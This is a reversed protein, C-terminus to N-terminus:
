YKGKLRLKNLNSENAILKLAEKTKSPVLFLGSKILRRLKDSKNEKFLNYYQQVNAAQLNQIDDEHYTHYTHFDMLIDEIKKPSISAQFITNLKEKLKEDVKTDPFTSLISVNFEENRGSKNIIYKDILEDALDNRNLNRLLVVASNLSDIHLHNINELFATHLTKILLEENDDFSDYYLDWANRFSNESKNKTVTTALKNAELKLKDIDFYGNNIGHLLVLDFEDTNNFNYDKLLVKWSPLESKAKISDDRKEDEVFSGYDVNKLQDFTPVSEDKISLCYCFLVVSHLATFQIEEDYDSLHKLVEHSLQNIKLLIRINKIGLLNTLEKIKQSTSHNSFVIDSCENPTPDFLIERDIVKEKLEEYAEKEIKSLKEDNFILVVKCKKELKLNSILGLLQNSNIGEGKREFDDLCVLTRQIGLFPINQVEINKPLFNAIFNPMIGSLRKGIGGLKKAYLKTYSSCHELLTHINPSTGIIKNDITNEFISTKVQSITDLGFLSVSSYKEVGFIEDKNKFLIKNWFYTKGIGWKGRIALVMPSDCRLFEVIQNQIIEISM